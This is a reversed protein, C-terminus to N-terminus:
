QVGGCLGHAARGVLELFRRRADEVELVGCLAVAGLAAPQRDKSGCSRPSLVRCPGWTAIALEPEEKLPANHRSCPLPV